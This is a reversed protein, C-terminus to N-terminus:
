LVTLHELGACRVSSIEIGEDFTTLRGDHRVALGLLYVDTIQKSGRIRKADFLRSDRLSVDDAWFQHDSYECFDNLRDIIARATVSLRNSYKLASMIRVLGNETLACTAIGALSKMKLWEHARKHFEHDADFLANLANVDLLARM